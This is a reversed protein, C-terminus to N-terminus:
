GSELYAKTFYRSPIKAKNNVKETTLTTENGNQVNKVEIRKAIPFGDIDEIQKMEIAKLLKGEKDYLETKVIIWDRRVWSKIKSYQTKVDEKPISEVVYLGDEKGILKHNYDDPSRREMDEYALESGMFPKTKDASAIKRTKKLAPLYLWQKARKGERQIQLFKTGKVDAPELFVILTKTVKGKKKMYSKIKRGRVEGKKKILMKVESYSSKPTPRNHVNKMIEYGTMQLMIALVVLLM